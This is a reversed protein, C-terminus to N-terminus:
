PFRGVPRVTEGLEFGAGAIQFFRRETAVHTRQAHQEAFHEALLGAVGEELAYFIRLAM